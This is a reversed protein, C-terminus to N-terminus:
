AGPSQFNIIPGRNQSIGRPTPYPGAAERVPGTNETLNHFQFRRQALKRLKLLFGPCLALTRSKTFTGPPNPLQVVCKTLWPRQTLTWPRGLTRQANM